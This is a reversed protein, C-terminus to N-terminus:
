YRGRERNNTEMATDKKKSNEAVKRHIFNYLISALDAYARGSYGKTM